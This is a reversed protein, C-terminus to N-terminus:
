RLHTMHQIIAERAMRKSPVMEIVTRGQFRKFIHISFDERLWVQELGSIFCNSRSFQLLSLDASSDFCNKWNSIFSGQWNLGKM